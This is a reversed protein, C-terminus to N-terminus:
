GSVPRASRDITLHRRIKGEQVVLKWIGRSVEKVDCHLPKGTASFATALLAHAEQEATIHRLALPSDQKAFTTMAPTTVLRTPVSAAFACSLTQGDMQLRGGPEKATFGAKTFFRQEMLAVQRPHVIDIVLFLSGNVLFFGRWYRKAANGDRTQGMAATMDIRYGTIGPGSVPKLSVEAPHQIGVGNLQLVNKSAPITEFLEWRRPGFTSDLYSECGINIIFPQGHAVLHFSSLDQHGHPAESSGGRLTACIKPQPFRDALVAWDMVPYHKRFATEGKRPRWVSGSSGKAKVPAPPLCLYEAANPWHRPDAKEQGSAQWRRELEREIEHEGLARAVASHFSLPTWGNSDGFSCPIGHPSFLLPFLLSQRASASRLLPHKRRHFSEWGLYYYFAYRLGFNYYGIGEPWGGRCSKLTDMFPTLSTEVRRLVRQRQRAPLDLALALLGAGGTCVSNWNSHPQKYWWAPREPGTHRLFSQIPRESIAEIEAREAASLHPHLLDYGLALTMSNEGYSLDYIALPDPNQVRWTIWSWYTWQGMQRLHEVAADRFRQDSTQYFRVILSLVRGQMERARLLHANHTNQKWQFDPGEKLAGEARQAVIATAAKRHSGRPTRSLQELTHRSIWLRPYERQTASKQSVLVSPHGRGAILELYIM